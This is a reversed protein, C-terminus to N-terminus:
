STQSWSPDAKNFESVKITRWATVWEEVAEEDQLCSQVISRVAWLTPLTTRSPSVTNYLTGRSVNRVSPSDAWARLARLQRIFDAPTGAPDPRPAGRAPAHSPTGAHEPRRAAARRRKGTKSAKEWIRRLAAAEDGTPDCADAFAKTVEWTPCEDGRAAASLAEKSYRASAAVARYGPNGAQSRIRRLERALDKLPGSGEVPSEPRAM